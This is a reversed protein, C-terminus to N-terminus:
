IYAGYLLHRICYYIIVYVFIIM